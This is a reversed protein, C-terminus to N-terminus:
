ALAKDYNYFKELFDNVVQPIVFISLLITLEPIVVYIYTALAFFAIGIVPATVDRTITKLKLHDTNIVLHLFYSNIAIGIAMVLMHFAAGIIAGIFTLVLFSLALKGLFGRSKFVEKNDQIVNCFKTFISLFFNKLSLATRKALLLLNKM